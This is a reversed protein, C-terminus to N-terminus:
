RITSISRICTLTLSAKEILQLASDMISLNRLGLFDMKLLGLAEVTDKPFQTMLLGDSGNQLPVLQNLPAQSLVVGAAHTSYHRPLGEIRLATKMLLANQASDSLLNNLARSESLAQQLTIKPLNPIARALEDIAYVPMGFVRGVDRVAQKAGFTGFTIIQAVRAHGYKQHVYQLVEDRRNDPLDLDIDPMQAREPNLFREFLLQYKLPDVETIELVYAM